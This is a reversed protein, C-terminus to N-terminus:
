PTADGTLIADQEDQKARIENGKMAAYSSHVGDFETDFNAYLSYFTNLLLGVKIWLGPTGFFLLAVIPFNVVWFWSMRLHYHWQTQPDYELDHVQRRTALWSHRTLAALKRMM